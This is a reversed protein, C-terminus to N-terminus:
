FANFGVHFHDDHNALSVGAPGGVDWFFIVETPRSWQPLGAVRQALAACPGADRRCRIAGAHATHAAPRRASAGNGTSPLSTRREGTLM